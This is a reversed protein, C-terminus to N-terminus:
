QEAHAAVSDQRPLEEPLQLGPAVSRGIVYKQDTSQREESGHEQVIDAASVLVRSLQQVKSREQSEHADVERAEPLKGDPPLLSVLAPYKLIRHQRDDSEKEAAQDPEIQIDNGLRHAADPERDSDEVDAVLGVPEARCRYHNIEAVGLLLYAMKSTSDRHLVSRKAFCR